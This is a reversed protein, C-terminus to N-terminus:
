SLGPGALSRPHFRMGLGISAEPKRAFDDTVADPQVVPEGQTKAVNLFEERLPSDGDGVLGDPLPTPLEAGLVSSPEPTVLTPQTVNPMHVFDEHLDPALPM